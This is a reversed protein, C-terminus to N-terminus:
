PLLTDLKQSWLKALKEYGGTSPHIENKWDATEGPEFIGAPVLTGQTQVVHMGQTQAAVAEILRAVERLLYQSLAVWDGRPIGYTRLASYLWPGAAIASSNRPTAFDYTHMLLPTVTNHKSRARMSLLEEMVANAYVEFTKWGPKNIYRSPSADAGWDAATALIRRSRSASPPVDLAAIVDNGLGSIVIADWRREGYGELLQQFLPNRIANVMQVLEAGPRACNVAVTLDRTKMWMLLNETEWPPFHGLSFWSDGQALLFRQAGPYSMPPKGIGLYDYPNTLSLHQM